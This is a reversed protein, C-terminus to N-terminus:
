TDDSGDCNSDVGDGPTEEAGPYVDANDDDCDESAPSGDGDGDFGSDEYTDTIEVGYLAVSKTCGVLGLGLGLALAATSRLKPSLSAGCHPCRSATSFAACDCSPCTILHM